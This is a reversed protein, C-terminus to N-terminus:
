HAPAEVRGGPRPTEVLFSGALAGLAVIQLLARAAHTYEWQDRLRTWDPPLTEPTLPLLAANVPSVWIWFAAHAVAMCVAAVLTWGWAPRRRRVLFALVVVALLGGAELSGAVPGFAPPYLTQLLRLWLAGDYELKAPMELLHAMAASMGLAILMFTLWRWIRLGM